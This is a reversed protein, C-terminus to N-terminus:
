AVRAREIAMKMAQLNATADLKATNRYQLEIEAGLVGNADLWDQAQGTVPYDPWSALYDYRFMAALQKAFAESRGGGGERISVSPYKSEHYTLALKINNDLIFSKYAQTEPESFPAKGALGATCGRLCQPTFCSPNVRLRVREGGCANPSWNTAFNRNLDIGNANFATKALAQDAPGGSGSANAWYPRGDEYGDPNM